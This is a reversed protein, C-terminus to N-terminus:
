RLDYLYLYVSTGPEIFQRKHEGIQNLHALMWDMENYEGREYVHSFLVWVRRQGKLQNLETLLAQPNETHLGGAVYDMQPNAYYRFAPLAWNYVYLV